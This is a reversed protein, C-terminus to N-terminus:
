GANIDSFRIICGRSDLKPVLMRMSLHEKRYERLRMAQFGKGDNENWDVTANKAVSFAWNLNTDYYNPVWKGSGDM